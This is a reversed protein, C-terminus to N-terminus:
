PSNAVLLSSFPKKSLHPNRTLIDLWSNIHYIQYSSHYEPAVHQIVPACGLGLDLYLDHLLQLGLQALLLAPQLGHHSVEFLDTNEVRMPRPGVISSEWQNLAAMFITSKWPITKNYDGKHWLSGDLLLCFIRRIRRAPEKHCFVTPALIVLSSRSWHSRLLTPGRGILTFWDSCTRDPAMSSSGSLVSPHPWVPAPVCSAGWIGKRLCSLWTPGRLLFHESLSWDESPSSNKKLSFHCFKWFTIVKKLYQGIKWTSFRNDFDESVKLKKVEIMENEFLSM